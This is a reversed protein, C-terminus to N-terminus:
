EIELDEPETIIKENSDKQDNETNLIKVDYYSKLVTNKDAFKSNLHNESNYKM